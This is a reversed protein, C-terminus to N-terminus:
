KKAGLERSREAAAVVASAAIGNFGAKELVMVGCATTGAPSIVADRLEAPHASSNLVMKATGLVTQAAMELAKARPLGEYVGGDALAMIFELVFAPSSGSLGTVADLQSEEVPFARGISLLIKEVTKLDEEPIGPIGAYCSMGEGVLAPTNPMVRVIREAGSAEKLTAITLGAAISVLLKGKLYASAESLAGIAYQPKVALIVASAETLADKMSGSTVVGTNRAFLEAAQPSVDYAKINGTDMGSRVLGAAIATAMKGAGIFAIKQDLTM